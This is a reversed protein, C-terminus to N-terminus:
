SRCSYRLKSNAMPNKVKYIQIRKQRAQAAIARSLNKNAVSVDLAECYMPEEVPLLNLDPIGIPGVNNNINGLAIDNDNSSSPLGFSTTPQGCAQQVQQFRAVGDWGDRIQPPRATQNLILPPSHAAAPSQLKPQEPVPVDQNPTLSLQLFFPLEM